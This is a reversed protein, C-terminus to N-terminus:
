HPSPGPGGGLLAYTQMLDRMQMADWAIQMCSAAQARLRVGGEVKALPRPFASHSPTIFWLIQAELFSLCTQLLNLRNMLRRHSGTARPLMLGGEEPMRPRRLYSGECVGSSGRECPGGGQAAIVKSNGEGPIDKGMDGVTVFSAQGELGPCRSPNQFKECGKAQEQFKVPMWAEESSMSNILLSTNPQLHCFFGFDLIQTLAFPFNNVRIVQFNLPQSGEPMAPDLLEFLRM